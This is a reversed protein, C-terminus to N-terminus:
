AGAMYFATLDPLSELATYAPIQRRGGEGEMLPDIEDCLKAVINPCTALRYCMFYLVTGVIEVGGISPGFCLNSFSITLSQGASEFSRSGDDRLARTIRSKQSLIKSPPSTKLSPRSLKVCSVSCVLAVSM